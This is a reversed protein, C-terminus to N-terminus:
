QWYGRAQYNYTNSSTLTAIGILKSARKIAPWQGRFDEESIAFDTIYERKVTGANIAARIANLNDVDVNKLMLTVPLNKAMMATQFKQLFRVVSASSEVGARYLNDIEVSSIKYRDYFYQIELLSSDWWGTVNWTKIWKASSSCNNRDIPIGVRRAREIMRQCEDGAIGGSGTPGGPGELYVHKKAGYQDARRMISVFESGVFPYGADGGLMFNSGVKNVVSTLNQNLVISAESAFSFYGIPAAEANVDAQAAQLFFVAALCTLFRM